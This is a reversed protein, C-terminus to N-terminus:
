KPLPGKGLCLVLSRQPAPYKTITEERERLVLSFYVFQSLLLTKIEIQQERCQQKTLDNYTSFKEFSESSFIFSWSCILFGSRASLLASKLTIADVPPGAKHPNHSM